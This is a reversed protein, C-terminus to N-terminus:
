CWNISLILCELSFISSTCLPKRTTSDNMRQVRSGCLGWLEAFGLLAGAMDRRTAKVDGESETKGIYSFLEINTLIAVVSMM